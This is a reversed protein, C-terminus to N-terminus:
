NPVGSININGRNKLFHVLRRGAVLPVIDNLDELTVFQLDCDMTVGIGALHTTLNYYDTAQLTPLAKRIVDEISEM